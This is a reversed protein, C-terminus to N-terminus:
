KKIEKENIGRKYADELKKEYHKYIEGACKALDSRNMGTYKIITDTIFNDLVVGHGNCVECTKTGSTSNKDPINGEGKCKECSITMGLLEKTDM